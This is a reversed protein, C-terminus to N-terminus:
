AALLRDSPKPLIDQCITRTADSREAVFGIWATAMKLVPFVM